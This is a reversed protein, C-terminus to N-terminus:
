LDLPIHVGRDAAYKIGRYRAALEAMYKQEWWKSESKISNIEAQMWKIRQKLSDVESWEAQKM